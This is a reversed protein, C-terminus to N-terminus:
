KLFKPNKPIIAHMENSINGKHNFGCVHTSRM